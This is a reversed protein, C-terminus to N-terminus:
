EVETERLVKYVWCGRTHESGIRTGCGRCYQHSPGHEGDTRVITYLTLVADRLKGVIERHHALPVWDLIFNIKPVYEVPDFDEDIKKKAM